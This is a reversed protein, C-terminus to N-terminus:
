PSEIDEHEIASAGLVEGNRAVVPSVTIVIKVRSGDKRMRETRLPGLTKGEQIDNMWQAHEERKEPPVIKYVPQGMMEESTWGYMQEAANNWAIIRSDLDRAIIADHAGEVIAALLADRQALERETTELQNQLVQLKDLNSRDDLRESM